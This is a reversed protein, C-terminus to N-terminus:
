QLTQSRSYGDSEPKHDVAFLGGSIVDGKSDRLAMHEPILVAVGADLLRCHVAHLDDPSVKFCGKVPNPPEVGHSVTQAMNEFARLEAGTLFSEPKIIGAAEPLSMRSPVVNKAVRSLQEVSHSSTYSSNRVVKILESIKSIGRSLPEHQSQLRIYRDIEDHMYGAYEAHLSTWTTNLPM